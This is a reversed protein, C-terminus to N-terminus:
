SFFFANGEADRRMAKSYDKGPDFVEWVSAPFIHKNREYWRRDIVKTFSPDENAGELNSDSATVTSSPKKPQSLPDYTSLDGAAPAPSSTGSRSPFASSAPPEASYPFLPKSGHDLAKNVIFYYFEYHQM